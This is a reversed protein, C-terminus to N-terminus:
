RTTRGAIAPTRAALSLARGRLDVAWMAPANTKAINPEITDPQQLAPEPAPLDNHIVPNGEIRDVDDRAALENVLSRDGTVLLANIIYFSRYRIKRGDLLQRLPAQSQEALQYLTAYVYLGRDVKTTLTSAASLDAQQKLVVFFEAAQGHKTHKLVWPAITAAWANACLLLFLFIVSLRKM